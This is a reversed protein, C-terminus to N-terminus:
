HQGEGAGVALFDEGDVFGECAAHAAALMAAGDLGDRGMELGAVIFTLTGGSFGEVFGGGSAVGVDAGAEL